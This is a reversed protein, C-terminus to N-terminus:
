LVLEEGDKLLVINADSCIIQLIEPRESHMPIIIEPSTKEV